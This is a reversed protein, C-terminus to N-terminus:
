RARWTGEADREPMRSPHQLVGEYADVFWSLWQDIFASEANRDCPTFPWAAQVHGAVPALAVGAEDGPDLAFPDEASSPGLSMFATEFWRFEGANRADCFWLAHSRGIYGFRDPARRVRIQTYAAIEFVPKYHVFANAATRQADGLELLADGLELRVAPRGQSAAVRVSPAAQTVVRQLSQGLTRLSVQASSFLAARRDADSREIEARSAVQAARGVESQHAARLRAAASSAPTTALELRELISAPSPRAEPAKHLCELVLAALATPVGILQPADRHLHQDRFDDDSPGPFPLSGALAEHAVVGLSYVDSATTAREMRWREPAAYEATMARKRTDPATVAEAYRAIGFDALQWRDELRLINAPKIDRHVVHGRLDTLAAAVDGMIAIVSPPELRGGAAKLHKALSQQALPMVIVWNGKWEGSDIIPVVNRASL